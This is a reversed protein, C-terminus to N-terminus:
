RLKMRCYPCENPIGLLERGCNPCKTESNNQSYQEYENNVNNLNDMHNINANSMPMQQYDVNSANNNSMSIQQYDVNSINNNSIVKRSYDKKEYGKGLEYGNVDLIKKKGKVSKFYVFIPIAIAILLLIGAIIFYITYSNKVIEITYTKSTGDSSKTVIKIISGDKLNKNGIIEYTANDDEMEVSIDLSDEDDIVLKYNEKDFEFKLKYGKVVINKINANTGLTEGENLRTVKIVYIKGVENEATVKVLITNEGVKLNKNGTIEVKSTEKEPLALIEINEVNYLVKTEYSLIDKDFNITGSSLSLSSLYANNDRNDKRIINLTYTQKEGTQSVVTLEVKNDGFELKKDTVNGKVSQSTVSPIGTVTIKEVTKDVEITYNTITKKFEPKLTGSSIDIGKLYVNKDCTRNIGVTYNRYTGNEATVKITYVNNGCALKKTGTGIVSALNSTPSATIVASNKTTNVIYSTTNKNFNPITVGDIKLDNLTNINNKITIYANKTKTPITSNESKADIKVTLIAKGSLSKTKLNITGIKVYDNTINMSQDINDSVYTIYQNVIIEANLNRMSEGTAMAFVSCEITQNTVASSPCSLKMEFKPAADVNIIFIFSIVVFFLLKYIKKM